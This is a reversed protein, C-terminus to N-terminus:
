DQCLEKLGGLVEKHVYSIAQSPFQAVIKQLVHTAQGNVAFEFM